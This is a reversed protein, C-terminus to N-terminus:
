DNRARILEALEILTRGAEGLPEVDEKASAILDNVLGRAAPIGLMGALNGGSLHRVPAEFARDEAVDIIDDSIQFAQGLRRAYSRLADVIQEEAGLLLAPIAVAAVFLLGTKQRHIQQLTNLDVEETQSVLDLQQGGCLGAAGVAQGLENIAALIADAPAQLQRANLAVLEFGHSLASMAALIANSEGFVKHTTAKGRRTAHDDMCPLDDLLLSSTHAFEVGCAAPLVQQQDHGLAQAAALCLAPRLRKGGGMAAYRLADALVAPVQEGGPLNDQLAQEIMRRKIALDKQIDFEM